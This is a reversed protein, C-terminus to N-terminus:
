QHIVTREKAHDQAGQEGVLKFDVHAREIVEGLLCGAFAFTQLYM